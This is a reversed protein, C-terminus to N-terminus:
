CQAKVHKPAEPYNTFWEVLVSHKYKIFTVVGWFTLGIDGDEDIIWKMEDRRNASVQETALASPMTHM